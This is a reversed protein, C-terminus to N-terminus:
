AVVTLTVELEKEPDWGLERLAGKAVYLSRIVPEDLAGVVEELRWSGKKETHVKFRLTKM